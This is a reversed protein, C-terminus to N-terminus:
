CRGEEITQDEFVDVTGQTRGTHTRPGKGPQPDRGARRGGSGPFWASALHLGLGEGQGAGPLGGRPEVGEALM